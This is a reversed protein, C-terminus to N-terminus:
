VEKITEKVFSILFNEISEDDYKKKRLDETILTIINYLRSDHGSKTQTQIESNKM